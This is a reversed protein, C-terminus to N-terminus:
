EVDATQKSPKKSESSLMILSNDRLKQMGQTVIQEGSKLGAKVIVM